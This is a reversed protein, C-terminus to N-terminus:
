HTGEEVLRNAVRYDGYYCNCQMPPNNTPRLKMSLVKVCEAMTDALSEKRPVCLFLQHIIMDMTLVSTTWHYPAWLKSGSTIIFLHYACSNSILVEWEGFEKNYMVKAVTEAAPM